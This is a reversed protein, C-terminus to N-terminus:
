ILGRSHRVLLTPRELVLLEPCSLGNRREHLFLDSRNLAGEVNLIHVWELFLLLDEVLLSFSVIQCSKLCTAGSWDTNSGALLDARTDISCRFLLRRLVRGSHLKLRSHSRLLLCGFQVHCLLKSAESFLAASLEVKHLM